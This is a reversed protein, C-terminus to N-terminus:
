NKLDEYGAVEFGAAQLRATIKEKSSAGSASVMHLHLRTGKPLLAVASNLPAAIEGAWVPAFVHVQDYGEFSIAPPAIPMGKGQMSKVCGATYAAIKGIKKQSLIECHDLVNKEAYAAARQKAHGTFSYSLVLEKM